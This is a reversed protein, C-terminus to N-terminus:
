PKVIYKIDSIKGIMKNYSQYVCSYRSYHNAGYGGITHKRSQYNVTFDDFSGDKIMIKEDPKQPLDMFKCSNVIESVFAKYDAESLKGTWEEVISPPSIKSKKYHVTKDTFVQVEFVLRPYTGQSKFEFFLEPKPQDLSSFMIMFFIYLVQM